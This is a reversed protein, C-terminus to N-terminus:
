RCILVPITSKSVVENAESGLLLRAIGSRGHSSMVILDAQGQAAAWIIGAAPLNDRVHFTECPVGAARAQKAVEDLIATAGEAALTDYNEPPLAVVVEGIAVSSWSPTVHVALASAGLTKALALGQHVAKGALESGDTAIVIRKYM